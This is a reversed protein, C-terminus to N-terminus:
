RIGLLVLLCVVRELKDADAIQQGHVINFFQAHNYESEYHKM